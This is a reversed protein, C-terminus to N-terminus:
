HQLEREKQKSKKLQRKMSDVAAATGEEFTKTERKVILESGPINIKLETVKNEKESTKQVKLFVEVDIIKDHFKELGMVKKEVFDILKKDASFNVSQVFVKM